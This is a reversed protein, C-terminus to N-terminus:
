GRYAEAIRALANGNSNENDTDAFGGSAKARSLADKITEAQSDSVTFTMQQFPARDGDPLNFDTGYDKDLDFDPVGWGSFDIEPFDAIVNFDWEINARPVSNLALSLEHFDKTGSKLGKVKVYIPRKGDTEIIEVDELGLNVAVEQRANGSAIVNDESIVGPEVFGFKSMSKELLHMGYETHRNFNREDPKLDTIKKKGM